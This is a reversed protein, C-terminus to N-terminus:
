SHGASTNASARKAQRRESILEDVVSGTTTAHQKVLDFTYQLRQQCEPMALLETIRSENTQQLYDSRIKIVVEETNQYHSKAIIQNIFEDDLTITTM